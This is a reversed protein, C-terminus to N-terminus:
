GGRRAERARLYCRFAEESTKRPAYGFGARLRANSLVPRHQLFRVQEPGYRSLGLARLVRLAARLAGAPVAVYPKGLIRAIERMSLTGDAAVNYVGTRDELVGRLLCEVLDEDWVFVFPATGGQVDLVFRRDFLATIQNSVREGLITCARFVLQLLEPHERREQELMEEVLRKHRAYPFEDNGRLACAETLPVPNDAHYGYAAGSSTVILKRVKAALCADLVNRTGLVDVRYELEPTSAPGPSVVFALHVVSDVAREALLEALDPAGVDRTVYDVSPIRAAPRVERVDLATLREIGTGAAALRALLLGGVYGAAGTVLVSRASRVATM